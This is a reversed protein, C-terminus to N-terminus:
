ISEYYGIEKRKSRELLEKLPQVYINEDDEAVTRSDGITVLLRKARSFAVCLRNNNNLFGVRKKLDKECNARVASLIVIDFEKGQFADVTGISIRYAESPFEEDVMEKLLQSQKSYFTIIGIDYELNASLIKSLEKKVVDIECKRSKSMGGQECPTKETIPVDIWALPKNEYLNLNHQKREDFETIKEPECAPKLKEEQYFVNILDCIASHMRFQENLSCTRSVNLPNKIDNKAKEDAEKVKNFLRMFLSEELVQKVSDNKTKKIVDEVIDLEVMHPLQKHDGALIVKKGMSMPILLDLPNSRAAEDVIVYDYKNDFGKMAPSIFKNASQQCTAANVQSYQSILKKANDTNTLEHKFEWIENYLKQEPTIDEEREALENEIMEILNQLYENENAFNVIPKSSSINGNLQQIDNCYQEFMENFEPSIETARRLKKWYHPIDFEVEECENKLYLELRRISAGKDEIFSDVMLKQENLLEGLRSSSETNPIETFDIMSVIVENIKTLLYPPFGEHQLLHYLNKLEDIAHKPEIYKLYDVSKNIEQNRSKVENNNLWKDCSIIMEDIWKFIPTDQTSARQRTLVRNVPVGSYSVGDIANDVADHQTSTILIRAEGGELENIREIIAKIVKTKGTGPPGQIVAIDPTNVAVRIAEKQRDNFDKSKDGDFCYKKLHDTIAPRDKGQVGVIDGSQLLLNLGIMPSEGNLIKKRAINRRNSQIVSGSISPLIYGSEPTKRFADMTEESIVFQKTNVCSKDYESGLITAIKFNYDLPNEQNYAHTPIAVYQMDSKLFDSSVYGGDVSFILNGGTRKYNKYKIVGMEEADKRIAAQDLEDYIRWLEILEANDRTAERYKDMFDQTVKHIDETSDKFEIKGSMLTILNEPSENKRNNRIDIIHLYNQSSPEVIISIKKGFLKQQANKGDNGLAFWYKNKYVIEDAFYKAPNKMDIHRKRLEPYITDDIVIQYTEDFITHKYFKLLTLVYKESGDSAKDVRLLSRDKFEILEKIVDDKATETIDVQSFKDDEIEVTLINSSIQYEYTENEKLTDECRVNFCYEKSFKIDKSKM